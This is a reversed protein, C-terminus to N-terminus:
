IFFRISSFGYLGEVGSLKDVEVMSVVGGLAFIKMERFSYVAEQLLELGKPEGKDPSHFIPSFTVADAGMKQVLEIDELSHCSVVTFLGSDKSNEIDGFQTSTLHVGLSGLSKALSYDRHVLFNTIGRDRLIDSFIKAFKGYTPTQKDRFLIYDFGDIKKINRSISNEDSGYYKPDTILYRKLSRNAM